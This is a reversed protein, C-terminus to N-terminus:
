RVMARVTRHADATSSTGAYDVHFTRHGRPVVGTLTVIGVGRKLTVTRSVDKRSITVKGSPHHGTASRTVEVRFTIKGATTSRRTSVALEANSKLATTLGNVTAGEGLSFVRAGTSGPATYWQDAWTGSPDEVRLRVASPADVPLDYRGSSRTSAAGADRDQNVVARVVIGRLPEGSATTVTGRVHARLHDLQQAGATTTAGERVTLPTAQDVTLAEDHCEDRFTTSTDHYCVTYTGAPLGRFRYTGTADVARDPDYRSMQLNEILSSDPGDVINARISTPSAGDARSVRGVLTAAPKLTVNRTVTRSTNGMFQRYASVARKKPDQVVVHDYWWTTHSGAPRTLSYRGASNTTVTKYKGFVDGSDGDRLVLTVRAGALPVGAITVTGKVTGAPVTRADAPAVLLGAGLVAAAVLGVLLRVTRRHQTM